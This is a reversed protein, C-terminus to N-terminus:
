LILLYGAILAMGYGFTDLLVQSFGYGRRQLTWESDFVYSMNSLFYSRVEPQFYAIVALGGQIAAAYFLIEFLDKSNYRLKKARMLIYYINLLQIPTLVALQNICRLRNSFLDTNEIFTADIFGVIFLQILLVLIIKITKDMTSTKLIEAPVLFRNEFVILLITIIGTIYISSIPLFPPEFIALFTYMVLWVKNLNVKSLRIRM